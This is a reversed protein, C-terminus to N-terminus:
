FAPKSVVTLGGLYPIEPCEAPFIVRAAHLYQGNAMRDTGYKADGILPYGYHSLMARIQHSKGTELEILLRTNGNEEKLKEVTLSAARAEKAKEPSLSDKNEVFSVQNKAKDKIIYGSLRGSLNCSGKVLCEYYKHLTRERLMESVVRSGLPTIGCLVIGSTNRDLRNLVSPHFTQLSEKPIIENKLLYGIMWENLSVDNDNAKQTLIGSPKNLFLIDETEKLVEIGKLNEYAKLYASAEDAKAEGSFLAITEDKVYLKIEDGEKLIERGECKKGNLTLNKKRAMKYIFSDPASHLRSKIFKDMRGGAESKSVIYSIM